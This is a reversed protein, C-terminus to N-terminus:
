DSACRVGITYDFGQNPDYAVRNTTTHIFPNQDAHSGGRLIKLNAEPDENVPNETPARGYYDLGYDDQVWEWVNGAMDMVGYPSAGAPKAGGPWPMEQGCGDGSDDMVLLDCNPHDFGWPFLRGDTGRAAKEWEAETPLRKGAWSCYNNAQHWSVANVAHSERGPKNWNTYHDEFALRYAASGSNPETCAGADVCERFQGVTVEYKDISFADLFIQSSPREDLSGRGDQGRTFVGEPVRVMENQDRSLVGAYRITDGTAAMAIKNRALWDTEELALREEQSPGTDPIPAGSSNASLALRVGIYPYWRLTRFRYRNASRLDADSDVYYWSNGRMSKFGGPQSNIPDQVPSDAYYDERYWDATWEWVNGSMDLIGYPSSGGPRSAVPGTGDYGCGLGLGARMMVARDCNGAGGPPDDGWPYVRGETGRAAKEWEAETPMRLGAWAAFRTADYWSICNVPHDERDAQEWNCAEGVAPEFCAGAEVCDRYQGVTLETEQLLFASISVVHLPREDDFIGGMTFSSAPVGILDITNGSPLAFRRREPEVIFAINADSDVVVQLHEAPLIAPGTIRVDFWQSQSLEAEEMRKGAPLSRSVAGAAGDVLTMKGVAVYGGIAIRYFYIGAGAQRGADDTGDWLANWHGPALDAHVLTRVRQGLSNLVDLRVKAFEAIDFPIRTAPNFPNPFAAGLTPGAPREDLHEVDRVSEPITVSFFGEQGTITRVFIEGSPDSFEVIAGEVPHGDVSLSVTGQLEPETWVTQAQLLMMIATVCLLMSRSRTCSSHNQDIECRDLFTDELLVNIHADVKPPLRKRDFSKLMKEMPLRSARLAREIRKSHPDLFSRLVIDGNGHHDVTPTGAIEKKAFLNGLPAM